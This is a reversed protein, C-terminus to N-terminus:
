PPLSPPPPPLGDPDIAEGLGTGYGSAASHHLRWYVEEKVEAVAGGAAAGGAAAGGGGGGGSSGDCGAEVARAVEGGGEAAAGGEGGTSATGETGETGEVASSGELVAAATRGDAGCGVPPADAPLAHQSSLWSPISPIRASPSGPSAMAGAAAEMAEMAEMAEAADAADPMESDVIVAAVNARCAVAGREAATPPAYRRVEEALRAHLWRASCHRPVSLLLPLGVWRCSRGDRQLVVLPMHTAMARPARGAEGVAEGVAEGMARAEPGEAELGDAAADDATICMAGPSAGADATATSSSDSSGGNM